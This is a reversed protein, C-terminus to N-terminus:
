EKSDLHPAQPPDLPAAAFNVPPVGESNGQDFSVVPAGAAAANADFGDRKTFNFMGALINGPFTQIANNYNLM